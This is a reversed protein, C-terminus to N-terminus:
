PRALKMCRFSVFGRGELADHGLPIKSIRLTYKPKVKEAEDLSMPISAPVDTWKYVNGIMDEVGWQSICSDAGGPTSGARGNPRLYDSVTNCKNNTLGDNAGPDVTGRSATVWMADSLLQKGSNACASSAQYYTVFRTPYFDKKSYARYNENLIIGEHTIVRPLSNRSEEPDAAHPGNNSNNDSICSTDFEKGKKTADCIVADYKDVCWSGVRVMADNADGTECLQVGGFVRAGLLAGLLVVKWNRDSHM